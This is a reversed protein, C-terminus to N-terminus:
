QIHVWVGFMTWSFQHFEKAPNAKDIIHENEQLVAVGLAFLDFEALVKNSRVSSADLTERLQYRKRPDGQVQM